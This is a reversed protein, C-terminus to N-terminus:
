RDYRRVEASGPTREEVIAMLGREDSRYALSLTRDSDDLNESAEEGRLPVTNYAGDRTQVIAIPNSRASDQLLATRAHRIAAYLSDHGEAHSADAHFRIVDITSVGGAEHKVRATRTAVVDQDLEALDQLTAKPSAATIGPIALQQGARIVDPDAGITRRNAAHLQQWSIRTDNAENYSRAIASLTEGRRVTHLLRDGVQALGPNEAMFMTDTREALGPITLKEGPQLGDAFAAENARRLDSASVDMHFQRSYDRAIAMAGDGRQVEHFIGGRHVEAGAPPAPHDQLELRRAHLMALNIDGM